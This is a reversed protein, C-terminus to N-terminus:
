RSRFRRRRSRSCHHAISLNKCCQQYEEASVSVNWALTRLIESELMNLERLRIGIARAYYKNTYYVDDNFKASIVLTAGVLRHLGDEDLKLRPQLEKLRDIYISSTVLCAGSCHMLRFVRTLYNKIGPSTTRVAHFCTVVRSDRPPSALADYRAALAKLLHETAGSELQEAFQQLPVGCAEDDPQETKGVKESFFEGDELLSAATTSGEDASSLSEAAEFDSGSASSAAATSATSPCDERARTAAGAAHAEPKALRASQQSGEQCRSRARGEWVIRKLPRWASLCAM